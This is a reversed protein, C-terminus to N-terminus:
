FFRVKAEEEEKKEIEKELKDWDKKNLKAPGNDPVEEVNRTLDAWREGVVKALSIEIKTTMPKHTSKEVDIPHCLNLFLNYDDAKVEVTDPKIDVSYNKDKANKLLVCIVVKTESQYWDYRASSM